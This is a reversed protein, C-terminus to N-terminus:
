RSVRAKTSMVYRSAAPDVCLRRYLTGAHASTNSTADFRICESYTSRSKLSQKAM